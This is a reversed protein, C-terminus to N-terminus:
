DKFNYNLSKPNDELKSVRSKLDKHDEKLNSHDNALVKIDERIGAVSNAIRVLQTIMLVGFFGIVSLLVSIIQTANM